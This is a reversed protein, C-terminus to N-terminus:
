GAKRSLRARRNNEAQTVPELHDPNVCRPNRCLHDIHLGSPIAGVISEYGYRHSGILPRGAPKFRGYGLDDAAGIWNWCVGPLPSGDWSTAPTGHKDVKAWFLEDSTSQQPLDTTGLRRVRVLHKQCLSHALPATDCGDVRCVSSQPRRTLTLPDGTRKWRRYHMACWGRADHPRNCGDISCIM